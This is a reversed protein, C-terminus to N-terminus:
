SFDFLYPMIKLDDWESYIRFALWLLFACIMGARFIIGIVKDSIRDKFIRRVIDRFFQEGVPILMAWMTLRAVYLYENARWFGLVITAPLIMLDYCCITKIRRWQKSDEVKGGFCVLAIFLLMNAFFMPFRTFLSTGLSKMLYMTDEYDLVLNWVLIDQIWRAAWVGAYAIVFILAGLKIGSLKNILRDFLLDYIFFVAFAISMRHIFVTSIMLLIGLWKKKESVVLAILFVAVAISTRLTCFSKLYPFILLLFPIASTNEPLFKGIFLCYSIVILGYSIAFYVKPEDTLLRIGKYYGRFLPEAIWNYYESAENWGELFIIKYSQADAGGLREGTLRFAAFFAFILILSGYTLFRRDVSVRGSLVIDGQACKARNICIFATISLLFYVIWSFIDMQGTYM